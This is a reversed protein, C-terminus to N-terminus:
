LPVAEALVTERIREKLGRDSAVEVRIGLLDELDLHFGAHDLLSATRPFTVLLDLDSDERAERRAVSGFVRVNTVGYREAVALIEDRKEALLAYIDAPVTRRRGSLEAGPSIFPDARPPDRRYDSNGAHEGDTPTSALASAIPSATTTSGTRRRVAPFM